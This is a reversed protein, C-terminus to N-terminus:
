SNSSASAANSSLVRIAPKSLSQPLMERKPLALSADIKRLLENKIMAHGIGIAVATGKADSGGHSKIVVGNLGLFVGGNINRPDLREKLSAFASRALLYGLKSWLSQGMAERVYQNIQKATGEATKLAINGAFGETVVV